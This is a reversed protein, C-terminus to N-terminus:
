PVDGCEDAAQPNTLPALIVYREAVQPVLTRAHQAASRNSGEMHM